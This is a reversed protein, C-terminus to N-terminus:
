VRYGSRHHARRRSSEGRGDPSGLVRRAERSRGARACRGRQRSGAGVILRVPKSPLMQAHAAAGAALVLVLVFIRGKMAIQEARQEM